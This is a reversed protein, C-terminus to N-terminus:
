PTEARSQLPKGGPVIVRQRTTRFQRLRLRLNNLIVRRWRSPDCPKVSWPLPSAVGRELHPQSAPLCGQKRPDVWGASMGSITIPRSTFDLGRKVPHLVLPTTPM